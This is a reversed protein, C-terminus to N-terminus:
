SAESELAHWTSSITQGSHYSLRKTNLFDAAQRQSAFENVIENKDDYLVVAVSLRHSAKDATSALPQSEDCLPFPGMSKLRLRMGPLPAFHGNVINSVMSHSVGLHQAAFKLQHLSKSFMATTTMCFLQRPVFTSMKM